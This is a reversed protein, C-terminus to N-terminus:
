TSRLMARLSLGAPGCKGMEPSALSLSSPGVDGGKRDADVARASGFGSGRSFPSSFLPDEKEDMLSPCM